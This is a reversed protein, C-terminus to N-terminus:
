RPPFILTDGVNAFTWVRDGEGTFAKCPGTWTLLINNCFDEDTILSDPAISEEFWIQRALMREAEDYIKDIHDWAGYLLTSDTVTIVPPKTDRLTVPFLMNTFNGSNDTARILVTTTKATLWSGPSPTQEVSEVECNDTVKIKTRYDPLAAGCTSDVELYQPPIQAILCQSCSTLFAATAILITLKKMDTM